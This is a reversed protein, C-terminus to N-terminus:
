RPLKELVAFLTSVHSWNLAALGSKPIGKGADSRAATEKQFIGAGTQTTSEVSGYGVSSGGYATSFPVCDLCGNAAKGSLWNRLVSTVPPFLIKLNQTTVLRLM